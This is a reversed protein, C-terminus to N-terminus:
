NEMGTFNHLSLLSKYFLRIKQVCVMEACNECDCWEGDEQVDSDSIEVNELIELKTVSYEPEFDYPVLGLSDQSQM